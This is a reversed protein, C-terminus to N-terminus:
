GLLYRIDNFKEGFEGTERVSWDGNPEEYLVMRQGDQANTRNVVNKIFKYEKM